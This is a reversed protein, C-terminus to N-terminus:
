QCAILRDSHAEVEGYFTTRQRGPRGMGELLSAMTEVTMEQCHTAGANVYVGVCQLHIALLKSLM